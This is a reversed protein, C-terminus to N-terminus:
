HLYRFWQLFLCFAAFLFSKNMNDALSFRYPQGMDGNHLVMVTREVFPNPVPLAPSSPVFGVQVVLGM